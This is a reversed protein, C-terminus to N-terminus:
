KILRFRSLREECEPQYRWMAKLRKRVSEYTKKDGISFIGGTMISKYALWKTVTVERVEESVRRARDEVSEKKFLVM